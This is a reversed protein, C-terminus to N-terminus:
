VVQQSTHLMGEINSQKPEWQNAIIAPIEKAFFNSGALDFTKVNKHL